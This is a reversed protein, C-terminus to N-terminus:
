RENSSGQGKKVYLPVDGVMGRKMNSAPESLVGRRLLSPFEVWGRVSSPLISFGEGLGKGSSPLPAPPVRGQPSRRQFRHVASAVPWQGWAV